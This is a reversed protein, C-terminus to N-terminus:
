NVVGLVSMVIGSYDQELLCQDLWVLLDELNELILISIKYLIKGDFILSVFKIGIGGIDIMVIIMIKVM